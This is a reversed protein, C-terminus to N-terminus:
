SVDGRNTIQVGEKETAPSAEVQRSERGPLDLRFRVGAPAWLRTRGEDELRIVLLGSAHGSM